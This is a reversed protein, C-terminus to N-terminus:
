AHEGCTVLKRWVALERNINAVCREKRGPDGPDPTTREWMRLTSELDAVRFKAGSLIRACEDHTLTAQDVKRKRRQHVGQREEEARLRTELACLAEMDAAYIAQGGLTGGSPREATGYEVIYGALDGGHQEIWERQSRVMRNLYELEHRYRM